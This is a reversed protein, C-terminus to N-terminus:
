VRLSGKSGNPDCVPGLPFWLRKLIAPKEEQGQTWSEGNYDSEFDYPLKKFM